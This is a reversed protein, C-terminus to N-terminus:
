WAERLDLLTSSTFRDSEALTACFFNKGTQMKKKVQALSTSYLM